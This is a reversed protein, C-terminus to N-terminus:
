LKIMYDVDQTGPRNCQEKVDGEVREGHKERVVFECLVHTTAIFGPWKPQRSKEKQTTKIKTNTQQDRWM